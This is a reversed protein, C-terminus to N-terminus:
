WEGYGGRGPHFIDGTVSESRQVCLRIYRFPEYKNKIAKPTVRFDQCRFGFFLANVM